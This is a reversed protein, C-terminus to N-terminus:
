PNKIFKNLFEELKEIRKELMVSKIYGCILVGILAIVSIINLYDM